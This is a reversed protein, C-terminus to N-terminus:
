ARGVSNTALYHYTANADCTILEILSNNCRYLYRQQWGNDGHVKLIPSIDLTLRDSCCWCCHGDELEAVAVVEVVFVPAVFVAGDDSEGMAPGQVAVIPLVM